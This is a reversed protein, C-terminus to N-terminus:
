SSDPLAFTKYNTVTLFAGSLDERGQVAGCAAPTSIVLIAQRADIHPSHLVDM